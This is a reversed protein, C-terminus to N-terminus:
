GRGRMKLLPEFVWEVIRRRELVVDADFTMGSRLPIARATVAISQRELEITAPYAPAAIRLPGFTDGPFLPTRAVDRVIARQVGFHQHPFADYRIRVIQKPEVFGIASSPILMRGVLTSDDAILTVAADNPAAPDGVKRLVNVVRGSIPARVEYGRRARLAVESREISSLREDLEAMRDASVLPARALQAVIAAREGILRERGQRTTQLRERPQLLRDRQALWEITAIAGRAHLAGLADLQREALESQETQAVILQASDAIQRDLTARQRELGDREFAVRRPERARAETLLAREAAYRALMERDADGGDPLSQLDVVNFLVDDRGVSQGDAVRIATVVGGRPAFVRIAGRDPELYGQVSERRAYQGLVGFAVAAIVITTLLATLAGVPVGDIVRTSGFTSGHFAVAAARFLAADSPARDALPPPTRRIPFM